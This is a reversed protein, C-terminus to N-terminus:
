GYLIFGSGLGLGLRLLGLLKSSLIIKNSVVNTHPAGIQAIVSIVLFGYVVWFVALM